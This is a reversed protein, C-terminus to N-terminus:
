QSIPSVQSTIESTLQKAELAIANRANVLLNYQNVLAQINTVEANYTVVKANYVPVGANYASIDGNSRENQLVTQQQALNIADAKATTENSDIQTKQTALTADDQKIQDQRSTFEAQYQNAFAVIKARDSFYRQYYTELGSSLSAVETGFVSHMENVVDNPETQKYAAITDMIRQDHLDHQYYDMLMSNVKTKDRASLRDYAAHLMEHAATVQEIGDLRRDSVHLVFIGQQDSHYCGLVITQESKSSCSKAFSTAPEVDPANVYFVKRAFPTMTTQNALQQVTAPAHYDRLKWWDELGQRNIAIVSLVVFWLLVLILAIFKGPSKHSVPKSDM